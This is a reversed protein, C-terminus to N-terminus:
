PPMARAPALVRFAFLSFYGFRVRAREGRPGDAGGASGAIWRDLHGRMLAAVEGPRLEARTM